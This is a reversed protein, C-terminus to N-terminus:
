GSARTWNRNEEAQPRTKQKKSPPESDETSEPRLTPEFLDGPIYLPKRTPPEKDLSYRHIIDLYRRFVADVRYGGKGDSGYWYERPNFEKPPQAFITPDSLNGEASMVADAGTATLCAELDGSNLINGNAFIVTERPLNDRLFRIM